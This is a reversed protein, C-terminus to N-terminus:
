KGEEHRAITIVCAAIAELRIEPQSEDAIQQSPHSFREEARKIQSQFLAIMRPDRGRAEATAVRTRIATLRRKHQETHTVLRTEQLAGFERDRNDQERDHRRHLENLARDALQPLRKIDPLPADELTGNALAALLANM